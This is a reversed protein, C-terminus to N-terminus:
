NQTFFSNKKQLLFCDICVLLSTSLLFSWQISLVLCCVIKKKKKMKEKGEKIGERM